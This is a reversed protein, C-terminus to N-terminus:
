YDKILLNNLEEDLYYWKSDCDEFTCFSEMGKITKENLIRDPKPNITFQKYKITTKGEMLARQIRHHGDACSGDAFLIIPYSLNAVSAVRAHYALELHTVPRKILPVNNKICNLEEINMTKTELISSSDILSKVYWLKDGRRMCQKSYDAPTFKDKEKLLKSVYSNM